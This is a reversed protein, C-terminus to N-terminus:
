YAELEWYHINRQTRQVTFRQSPAFASLPIKAPPIVETNGTRAWEAPPPDREVASKSDHLELPNSTQDGTAPNSTFLNFYKISLIQETSIDAGTNDLYTHYDHMPNDAGKRLEVTTVQNNNAPPGTYYRAYITAPPTTLDAKRILLTYGTNFAFVRQGGETNIATVEQRLEMRMVPTDSPTLAKGGDATFLEGFM